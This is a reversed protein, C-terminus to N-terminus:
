IHSERFFADVHALVSLLIYQLTIHVIPTNFRPKSSSLLTYMYQDVIQAWNYNLKTDV